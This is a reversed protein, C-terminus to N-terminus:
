DYKLMGGSLNEITDNYSDEIRALIMNWQESNLGNITDIENRLRFTRMGNDPSLYIIYGDHQFELHLESVIASNFNNKVHVGLYESTLIDNVCKEAAVSNVLDRMAFIGGTPGSM